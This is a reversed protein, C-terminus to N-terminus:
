PDQRFGPWRVPDLVESPVSTFSMVKGVMRGLYGSECSLFSIKSKLSKKSGERLLDIMCNTVM